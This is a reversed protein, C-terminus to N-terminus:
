RAIWSARATTSGAGQAIIEVSGVDPNIDMTYEVNIKFYGGGTRATQSNTGPVIEGIPTLNAIIVDATLAVSVAFRIWHLQQGNKPAGVVLDKLFSRNWASPVTLTVLGDRALTAGGVDTGDSAVTMTAWNKGASYEASLTSVVANVTGGVDVVMGGIKGVVGVYLYDATAWAGPTIFTESQARDFLNPREKLIDLYENASADYFFLEKIAPVLQMRMAAVPEVLLEQYPQGDQYQRVNYASRTGGSGPVTLTEGEFGRIPADTVRAAYLQRVM